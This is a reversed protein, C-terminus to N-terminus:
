DFGGGLIDTDAVGNLEVVRVQSLLCDSLFVADDM